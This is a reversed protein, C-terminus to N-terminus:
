GAQCARVLMPKSILVVVIKRGLSVRYMIRATHTEFAFAIRLIKNRKISGKPYHAMLSCGRVAIRVETRESTGWTSKKWLVQWGCPKCCNFTRPKSFTKSFEASQARSEENKSSEFKRMDINLYTASVVTPTLLSDISVSKLLFDIERLIVCRWDQFNGAFFFCVFGFVFHIFWLALESILAVLSISTEVFLAPFYM